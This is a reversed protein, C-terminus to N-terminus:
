DLFIESKTTKKVNELYSGTNKIPPPPPLALTPWHADHKELHAMHQDCVIQQVLYLIVISQLIFLMGKPM